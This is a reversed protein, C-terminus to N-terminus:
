NRPLLRLKVLRRLRRLTLPRPLLRSSLRNSPPRQAPLFNPSQNRSRSSAHKIRLNMMRTMLNARVSVSYVLINVKRVSSNLKLPRKDTQDERERKRRDAEDKLKKEEEQKRTKEEEAKRQLAQQRRNEMNKM